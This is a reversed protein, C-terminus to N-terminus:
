SALVTSAARRRPFKIQYQLGNGPSSVAKISGALPGTVLNYVIHTGLGSGGQGRKTTFFPEFLKELAESDMGLGDDSYSLYAMKDDVKVTIDIHGKARGDFGHILSNTLMNTMVQSLAGPYTKMAIGSACDIKIAIKKGKFKPQLSFLIEDLYVRLDFERISESSQDVAVQKFSRVLAAGRQSNTTMIRLSQDFIDIFERLGDASLQDEGLQKKMLALEEVMHSTATVCIGLPTNIEHAVGAVLSGLSALKEQSVLEAQASKLTDLTQNLVDNQQELQTKAVHIDEDARIRALAAAVHSAVFAILDLDGQTYILDPSYSQIIIVGYLRDDVMLPAGMWSYSAIKGLVKIEGNAILADLRSRNILQAQRKKVVYSTIGAGLPFRAIQSNPNMEDIFYEISFEKSEEHYLAVMFNPVKVLQSIIDHLRVFKRNNESVLVSLEAIQYLVRQLTEAKRREEIERELMVTRERVAQELRDVSILSQLAVSVHSAILGFLGQDEISYMYKKDYSQIVMAGLPRRQHDLLPYGMWHEARSGSGWGRSERERALDEEATLVFPQSNLIVWATPSQEPSELKVDQDPDQPDDFEDVQYVFRVTNKSQDYLAVYFNAAYMIRGITQHVSKLFVVVDSCSASIKSIELVVKQVEELRQLRTLM